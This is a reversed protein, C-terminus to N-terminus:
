LQLEVESSLSNTPVITANQFDSNNPIKKLLEKITQQQESITNMYFNREENWKQENQVTIAHTTDEEFFLWDLSISEEQCKTFLKDFDVSNRVKWGSLTAKTVGLFDALETDYRMKKLKKLKNLILTWDM